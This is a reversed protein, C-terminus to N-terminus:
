VRHRWHWPEARDGGAFTEHFGHGAAHERLWAYAGTGAFAAPDGGNLEATTLDVAHDVPRCHESAAPPDARAAVAAADRGMQEWLWLILLAQSTPSRYASAVAPATGLDARMASALRWWAAHTAPSFWAPRVPAIGDEPIAGAPPADATGDRLADVVALTAAPLVGDLQARTVLPLTREWRAPTRHLFAVAPEAAAPDMASLIEAIV